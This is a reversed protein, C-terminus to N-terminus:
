VYDAALNHLTEDGFFGKKIVQCFEFMQEFSHNSWFWLLLISSSGDHVDQSSKSIPMKEKYLIGSLIIM